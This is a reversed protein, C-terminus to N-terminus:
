ATNYSEVGDPLIGLYESSGDAHRAGEGVLVIQEFSDQALRLAVYAEIEIAAPGAIIVFYGDGHRQGQYTSTPAVTAIKKVQTKRVGSM